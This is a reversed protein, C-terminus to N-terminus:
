LEAAEWERADADQEYHAKLDEAQKALWERRLAAPMKAFMARWHDPNPNPPSVPRGLYNEAQVTDILGEGLARWVSRELWRPEETPLPDPEQLRWGRSSISRCWETYYSPTIIELDLFRRLLAQMSLAYKRKLALLEPLSVSSRRVGVDNRVADAPALFAGAFRYAAKEEDVGPAVQLALHGLEHAISLRQRGGPVDRRLVIAALRLTGSADRGCAPIGDFGDPAGVLLVHILREELVGTLDGVPERGLHWEKRLQFAADEADEPAAVPISQPTLKVRAAPAIQQQLSFRKELLETVSALLAEQKHESLSSKKRWGLFQVQLSGSTAALGMPTVGLAKALARLVTPRPVDLGKEYKSIAQKSVLGGIAQALDEMSLGRALRMTKLRDPNM